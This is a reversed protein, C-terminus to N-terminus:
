RLVEFPHIMEGCKLALLATALTATNEVGRNENLRAALAEKLEQIPEQYVFLSLICWALNEASRIITARGKLWEIGARIVSSREEYQLALLAIATAENHPSLQVGYVVSNGANWGGDVCARDVLMEVGLRIRKDSEVSRSCATFQKLAVVSFATPIVWSTAGHSWQWGYKDPNFRVSRDVTKFKWRWLWHGERGREADLWHLAKERGAAFDRTANLTCIALATTWSGESDGYFAPWAGDPRQSALLHAIGSRRAPDADLCRWFRFRLPTSAARGLVSTAGAEPRCSASWCSILLPIVFSIWEGVPTARENGPSVDASM